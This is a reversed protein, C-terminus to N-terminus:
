WDCTGILTCVMKGSGGPCVYRCCNYLEGQDVHCRWICTVIGNWCPPPDTDQALAGAVFSLAFVAVLILSVVRKM